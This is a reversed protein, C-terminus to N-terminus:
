FTYNAFIKSMKGDNYMDSYIVDLSLAENMTYSLLYDTENEGKDFQVHSAGLTLADNVNYETGLLIAEQDITDAITHDESSTFFPGGGFGNSVQGEVKNYATTLALDGVVVGGSLGYACNHNDQNTYQGALMLRETEYEAELYNFNASDLKYHWAQLATNELGEYVVGATLVSNGSPQLNTFVEATPSDAGSWRNLSALLVTTDEIDQNVVSIGQFTNPIMTIDDSDAYPTDIIQRGVKISSKGLEAQIYAEGVISYSKSASSLFMAEEDQGFLANTTFFTAGASVGAIPNTTIGLNGGMALTSTSNKADDEIEIAGVRLGGLIKAKGFIDSMEGAYTNITLLLALSGVTKQMEDRKIVPIKQFYSIIITIM